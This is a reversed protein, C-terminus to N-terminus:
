SSLLAQLCHWYENRTDLFSTWSSSVFSVAQCPTVNIIYFSIVAILWLVLVIVYLSQM